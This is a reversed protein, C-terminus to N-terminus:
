EIGGGRVVAHLARVRDRDIVILLWSYAEVLESNQVRSNYAM